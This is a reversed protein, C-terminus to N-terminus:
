CRKRKGPKDASCQRSAALFDSDLEFGPDSAHRSDPEALLESERSARVGVAALTGPGTVVDSPSSSGLGLLATLSEAAELDGPNTAASDGSAAPLAALAASAADARAGCASRTAAAAARMATAARPAAACLAAAAAVTHMEATSPPCGEDVEYPLSSGSGSASASATGAQTSLPHTKVLLELRAFPSLADRLQPATARDTDVEETSGARRKFVGLTGGRRSAAGPEVIRAGSWGEARKVFSRLATSVSALTGALAVRLSESEADCDNGATAASAREAILALHHGAAAYLAPLEEAAAAAAEADHLPEAADSQATFCRVAYSPVPGDGWYLVEANGHWCPAVKRVLNVIRGALLHKCLPGIYRCSCADCWLALTYVRQPPVTVGDINVSGFVATVLTQVSFQAFRSRGGSKFDPKYCQGVKDVFHDNEMLLHVAELVGRTFPGAAAAVSADCLKVKSAKEEGGLTDVLTSCLEFIRPPGAWTTVLLREDEGPPSDNLGVFGPIRDCVAFALAEAGNIRSANSEGAPLMAVFRAEMTVPGLPTYVFGNRRDTVFKLQGVNYSGRKTMHQQWRDCKSKSTAGRNEQGFYVGSLLDADAAAEALPLMRALMVRYGLPLDDGFVLSVREGIVLVRHCETRWQLATMTLLIAYIYAFHPCEGSFDSRYLAAWSELLAARISQNGSIRARVDHAVGMRRQLGPQEEIRFIASIVAPNLSEAVQLLQEGSLMTTRLANFEPPRRVGCVLKLLATASSRSTFTADGAAARFAIHRAEGVCAQTGRGYSQSRLTVESAANVAVLGAARLGTQGVRSVDHVIADRERFVFGGSANGMTLFAGSDEEEVVSSGIRLRSLVVAIADVMQVRHARPYLRVKGELMAKINSWRQGTYSRAVAAAVEAPSGGPGATVRALAVETNGARMNRLWSKKLTNRGYDSYPTILLPM